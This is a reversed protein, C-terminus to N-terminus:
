ASFEACLADVRLARLGLDTPEIHHLGCDGCPPTLYARRAEILDNMADFRSDGPFVEEVNTKDRARVLGERELDTLARFSM